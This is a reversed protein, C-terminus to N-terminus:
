FDFQLKKYKKQVILFQFILRLILPNHGVVQPRSINQARKLLM